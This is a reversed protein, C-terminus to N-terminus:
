GLTMEPIPNVTHIDSMKVRWVQQNYPSGMYAFKGAEDVTFESVQGVKRDASQLSSILQGKEDVELVLAHKPFFMAAAELHGLRYQAKDVFEISGVAQIGSLVAKVVCMLRLLFKRVYPHPGLADILGFKDSFRPVILSIYIRGRNDARINDPSGPLGDMFVEHTGKKSGTLHYKLIRSRVTESVLVFDENRSLQVGNAFHIGNMLVTSSKTKPDYKLLRGSPEGLFEITADQLFVNTSSDSWYITGDKAIDLDNPNKPKKGDIEVESSVLTEVKGTDVDVSFL